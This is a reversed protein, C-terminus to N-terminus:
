LIGGVLEKNTQLLLQNELEQKERKLKDAETEAKERLKDVVIKKNELDIHWEIANEITKDGYDLDIYSIVENELRAIVDGQCEGTVHIVQGNQNFYIRNGLKM